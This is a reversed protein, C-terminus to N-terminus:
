RAHGGVPASVAMTEVREVTAESLDHLWMIVADCRGDPDDYYKPRMGVPAFGMRRYLDQARTNDVRVELTMADIGAAVSDAMLRAMLATAVGRSTHDPHVAVTSVHAAGDLFLVGAHGVVTRGLLAVLHVGRDPAGIDDLYLGRGWPRPYAVADIAMVADVDGLRLPRLKLRPSRM